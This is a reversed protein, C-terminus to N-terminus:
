CDRPKRYPDGYKLREAESLSHIQFIRFAICTGTLAMYFPILSLSSIIIGYINGNVGDFVLLGFGLLFCGLLTRLLRDVAGVNREM